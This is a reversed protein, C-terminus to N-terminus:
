LTFFNLNCHWSELIHSVLSKPLIKTTIAVMNNKYQWISSVFALLGEITYFIKLSNM